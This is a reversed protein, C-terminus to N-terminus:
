SPCELSLQGESVLIRVVAANDIKVQDVSIDKSLSVFLHKAVKGHTLFIINQGNHREGLQKLYATASRTVEDAIENQIAPLDNPSAAYKVDPNYFRIEPDLIVHTEPHHLAIIEATEKARSLTSSYIAGIKLDSFQESLEYSQKKGKENLPIDTWGQLKGLANWETEGHRIVFIRTKGELPVFQIPSLKEHILEGRYHHEQDIVRHKLFANTSFGFSILIYIFILKTIM